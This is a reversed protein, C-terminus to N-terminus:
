IQAGAPVDPWHLAMLVTPASAADYDQGAIANGADVYRFGAALYCRIAPENRPDPDVIICSAGTEAFTRQCFALLFRRGLGLGTRAEDGIFMDLGLGGSPLCALRHDGAPDLPYRQVFGFPQGDLDIRFYERSGASLNGRIDELWVHAPAFWRAVHPRALCSAMFEMDGECLPIFEFTMINGTGALFGPDGSCFAAQDYEVSRYIRLAWGARLKPNPESFFLLVM